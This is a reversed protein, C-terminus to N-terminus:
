NPCSCKSLFWWSSRVPEFYPKGFSSFVLSQKPDVFSIIGFSESENPYASSSNLCGLPQVARFPTEWFESIQPFCINLLRSGAMDLVPLVLLCILVFSFVCGGNSCRHVLSLSRPLFKHSILWSGFFLFVFYPSPFDRKQLSCMYSQLKGVSEVMAFEIRAVLSTSM